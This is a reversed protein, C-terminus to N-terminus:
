RAKRREEALQLLGKTQRHTAKGIAGELPLWEHERSEGAEGEQLARMLYFQVAVTKEGVNYRVVDLPPGIRAWVGTEEHVERVAAEPMTEGREIHGKPLVWETPTRKAQVLLYEPQGGTKRFVVGGARSISDPEPGAPPPAATGSIGATRRDAELTLIYWYAQSTGKVRQDVYRWFALPLLALSVLAVAAIHWDPASLRPMALRLLTWAGSILAWVVVAGLVVILSRFFKSDAEFREVVALAERHELNLRAKSWQFTNLGTPADLTGLYRDRVIEAQRLSRDASDANKILLSALWVALASSPKKEEDDDKSALRKIQQYSTANRIKNYVHDDLLWSGLLFVFHGLLYSAFFFAVWGESGHLDATGPGLLLPGMGAQDLAYTCLAGPLLIAFLDTLGIFFKEPEFSM